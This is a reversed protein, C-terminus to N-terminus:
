GHAAAPAARVLPAGAGPPAAPAPPRGPSAPTAPGPSTAVTGLDAAIRDRVAASDRLLANRVTAPTDIAQEDGFQWRRTAGTYEGAQGADRQDHDGSGGEPLDAFIKR